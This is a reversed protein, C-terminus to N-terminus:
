PGKLGVNEVEIIVDEHAAQEGPKAVKVDLISFGIVTGDGASSHSVGAHMRWGQELDQEMYCGLSQFDM